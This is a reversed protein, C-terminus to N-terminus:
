EGGRRPLIASVEREPGYYGVLPGADASEWGAPLKVLRVRLRLKDALRRLRAISDMSSAIDQPLRPDAVPLGLHRAVIGMVRTEQDSATGLVDAAVEADDYETRLLHGFAGAMLRAKRKAEGGVREEFREQEEPTM